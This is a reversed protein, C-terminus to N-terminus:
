SLLKCSLCIRFQITCYIKRKNGRTHNKWLIEENKDLIEFNERM